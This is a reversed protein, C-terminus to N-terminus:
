AKGPKYLQAVTAGCLVSQIVGSVMFITQAATSPEWYVLGTLFNPVFLLLGMGLGYRLGHGMGPKDSPAKTFIYTFLGAAILRSLYVAIRATM